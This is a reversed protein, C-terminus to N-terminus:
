APEVAATRARAGRRRARCRVRPPERGGPRVRAPQAPATALRRQPRRSPRPRRGRADALPARERGAGGGLAHWPRDAGIRGLAWGFAAGNGLHIAGGVLPWARGRTVARGLLRVDTYTTGFARAVLPEVAIWAAAAAVGALPGYRVTDTMPRICPAPWGLEAGAAAVAALLARVSPRRADATRTAAFITRHVAGEAIARLAVGPHRDGGVLDPLLAVAQGSAVIALAIVSDNTRFRIDPDFGGLERCTRM